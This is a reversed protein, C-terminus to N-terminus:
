ANVLASKSALWEWIDPKALGFYGRIPAIFHIIKEASLGLLDSIDKSTPKQSSILWKGPEIQHREEIGISRLVADDLAAASDSLSILLYIAM